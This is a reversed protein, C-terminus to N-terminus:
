TETPLLLRHLVATNALRATCRQLSCDRSFHPPRSSPLATFRGVLQRYLRYSDRRRRQWQDLWAPGSRPPVPVLCPLDQRGRGGGAEQEQVAMHPRYWCTTHSAQRGPFSSRGLLLQSCLHSGRAPWAPSM